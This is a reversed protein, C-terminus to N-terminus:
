MFSDADQFSSEACLVHTSCWNYVARPCFTAGKLKQLSKTLRQGIAIINPLRTSYYIQFVITQNSAVGTM